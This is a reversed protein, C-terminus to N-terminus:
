SRVEGGPNEPMPAGVWHLFASTLSGHGAKVESPTGQTVLRGQRIILVRSCVLEAEDLRHSSFLVASGRAQARRVLALIDAAAVPDLTATPEDLVYAKPDHVVARGISIRQKQGSSLEGCRKDVFRALELEGIVEDIRAALRDDSLGHLSGFLQMVERGTLREYLGTTSTLFGLQRRAETPQAQVHVGAIHTSGTNPTILGALVRLATTKGAGNPGLLGVVEGPGVSFSVDDVALTDGFRRSIGRVELVPAAGLTTTVDNM